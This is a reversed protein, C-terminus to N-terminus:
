FFLCASLSALFPASVRSFHLIKTPCGVFCCITVFSLNVQNSFMISEYKIFASLCIKVVIILYYYFSNIVLFIFCWFHIKNSLLCYSLLILSFCKTRLKSTSTYCRSVCELTFHLLLVFRCLSIFRLRFLLILWFIACCAFLM